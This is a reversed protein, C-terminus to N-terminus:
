RTWRYKPKPMSIPQGHGKSFGEVAKEFDVKTKEAAVKGDAEKAKAAIKRALPTFGLRTALNDATDHIDDTQKPDAGKELLLEVMEEIAAMVAIHLMPYGDVNKANVLSPASKLELEVMKLDGNMVFMALTKVPDANGLIPTAVTTM